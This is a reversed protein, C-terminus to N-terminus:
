WLSLDRLGSVQSALSPNARLLAVHDRGPVFRRPALRPPPDSELTMERWFLYASSLKLNRM